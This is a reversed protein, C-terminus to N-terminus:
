SGHLWYYQDPHEAMLDYLVKWHKFNYHRLAAARSVFTGEPTVIARNRPNNNLMRDKQEPTKMPNHNLMREKVITKIATSSFINEEGRKYSGKRKRTAVSKNHSETTWGGLLGGPIKTKSDFWRAAYLMKHKDIGTLMRVLLLHALRHEKYTLLILNEPIDLGGLSRPIIHHSQYVVDDSRARALQQRSNILNHYIKTYKNDLYM